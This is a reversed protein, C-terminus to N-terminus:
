AYFQDDYIVEKSPLIRFVYSLLRDDADRATAIAGYLEHIADHQTMAADSDELILPASAARSGARTSGGAAGGGRQM